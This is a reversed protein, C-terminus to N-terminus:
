VAVVSVIGGNRQFDELSEEREVSSEGAGSLDSYTPKGIKRRFDALSLGAAPFSPPRVLRVHALDTRGLTQHLRGILGEVGAEGANWESATLEALVIERRSRSTLSIWGATAMDTDGFFVAHPFL